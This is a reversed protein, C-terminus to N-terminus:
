GPNQVESGKCKERTLIRREIDELSTAVYHVQHVVVGGAPGVEKDAQGLEQPHVPQVPHRVVVAVQGRNQAEVRAEPEPRVDRCDVAGDRWQQHGHTVEKRANQFIIAISLLLQLYQFLLM